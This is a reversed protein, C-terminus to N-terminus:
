RNFPADAYLTELEDLVLSRRLADAVVAQLEARTLPKNLLLVDGLLRARPSDLLGSRSRLLLVPTSRYGARQRLARILHFGSVDTLSYESIVLDYQREAAQQLAAAASAVCVLGVGDTHLARVIQQQAAMSADAVLIQLPYAHSGRRPPEAVPLLARAPVDLIVAAAPRLAPPVPMAPIDAVAGLVENLRQADVGAASGDDGVAAPLAATTAPQIPRSPRYSHSSPGPGTQDTQDTPNARHVLAAPGSMAAEHTASASTATLPGTPLQGAQLRRNRERVQDAAYLADLDLAGFVDVTSGGPGEPADPLAIQTAVTPIGPLGAEFAPDISPEVRVNGRPGAGGRLPSLQAAAAAAQTAHTAAAGTRAVRLELLQAAAMAGPAQTAEAVPAEASPLSRGPGMGGESPPRRRILAPYPGSAGAAGPEHEARILADGPAGDTELSAADVVDASGVSLTEPGFESAALGPADLAPALLEAAVSASVQLEPIEQATVPRERDEISAPRAAARQRAAADTARRIVRGPPRWAPTSPPPAPPTIADPLAPSSARATEDPAKARKVQGEDGDGTEDTERGEDDNQGAGDVRGVEEGAEEGAEEDAGDGAVELGEIEVVRNLTPLLQLTLRDITIAHRAAAQTGRPLASVAPIDRSYARLASLADLGSPTAPNVILIDTQQPDPRALLQFDYRNYQSHKFVIEILRVDREDLGAAAVRFVPRM